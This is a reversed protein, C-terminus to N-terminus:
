DRIRADGDIFLWEGRDFRAAMEAVKEHSGPPASTPSAKGMDASVDERIADIEVAAANLADFLLTKDERALREVYQGCLNSEGDARHPANFLRVISCLRAHVRSTATLWKRMKPSLNPQFRTRRNQKAESQPLFPDDAEFTEDAIRNTDMGPTDPM